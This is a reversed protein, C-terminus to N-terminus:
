FPLNPGSINKLIDVLKNLTCLKKNVRQQKCQLKILIECTKLKIIIRKIFFRSIGQTREFTQFFLTM